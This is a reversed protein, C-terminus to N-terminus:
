TPAPSRLLDRLPISCDALQRRDVPQSQQILRRAPAIDRPQSLCVAMVMRGAQLFFASLRHGEGQRLVVDDHAAPSGVIQLNVHYQDSWFWPVEAYPTTGGCIVAAVAIAQNQANQWAELRIHRGLLRNWHRTVDGAAYIRPDTTQGFEGTLIGDDVALGAEAALETNPEAGIGIVVLDAPLTRGDM